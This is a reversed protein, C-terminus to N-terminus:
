IGSSGISIACCTETPISIGGMTRGNFHPVQVFKPILESRSEPKEHRPVTKKADILQAMLQAHQEAAQAQSAQMQKMIVMMDEATAM